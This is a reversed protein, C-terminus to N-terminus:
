CVVFGEEHLNAVIDMIYRHEVVVTPWYPQFANDKGINQEIWDLASESHPILLFISGADVSVSFDPQNEMPGPSSGSTCFADKM